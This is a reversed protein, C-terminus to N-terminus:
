GTWWKGSGHFRRPGNAPVNFLLTGPGGVLSAVKPEPIATSNLQDSIAKAGEMVNPRYNFYSAVMEM